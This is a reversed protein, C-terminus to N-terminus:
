LFVDTLVFGSAPLATEECGLSSDSVSGRLADVILPELAAVRRDCSSRLTVRLLVPCRLAAPDRLGAARLAAAGPAPEGRARRGGPREDDAGTVEEKVRGTRKKLKSLLRFNRTHTHTRTHKPGM